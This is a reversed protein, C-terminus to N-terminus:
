QKTHQGYNENQQFVCVYVCVYMGSRVLCCSPRASQRNCLPIYTHIHTNWCVCIFLNHVVCDAAAKALVVYIYLLTFLTCEPTLYKERELMDREIYAVIAVRTVFFVATLELLSFSLSLPSRM